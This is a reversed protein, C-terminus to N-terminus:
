PAELAQAAVAGEVPEPRALGALAALLALADERGEAAEPREVAALPCAPAEQTAEV